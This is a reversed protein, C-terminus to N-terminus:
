SSRFYLIKMFEAIPYIIPNIRNIMALTDTLTPNYIGNKNTFRPSIEYRCKGILGWLNEPLMSEFPSAKTQWFPPLIRKKQYTDLDQKFSRGTANNYWSFDKNMINDKLSDWIEFCGEIKYMINGFFIWANDTAPFKKFLPLLKKSSKGKIEIDIADGFVKGSSKKFILNLCDKRYMEQWNWRYQHRMVTIADYREANDRQTLFYRAALITIPHFVTDAQVQILWDGDCKQRAEEFAAGLLLGREDKEAQVYRPLKSEINIKENWGAFTELAELTGDDSKGELIFFEDVFPLVNEIAEMFTYGARIGNRIFMYASFKM